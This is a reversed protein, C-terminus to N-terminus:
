RAHHVSDPQQGARLTPRSGIPLAHLLPEGAIQLPQPFAFVAPVLGRRLVIVAREVVELNGIERKEGMLIRQRLLQKVSDRAL